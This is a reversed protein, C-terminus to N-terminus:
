MYIQPFVRMHALWGLWVSFDCKASKCVSLRILQHVSLCVSLYVSASASIAFFDNNIHLLLVATGCILQLVCVFM